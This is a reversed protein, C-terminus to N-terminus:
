KLPRVFTTTWAQGGEATVDPKWLCRDFAQRLELMAAPTLDPSLFDVVVPRGKPGIALKVTVLELGHALLPAQVTERCGPDPEPHAFAGPADRAREARSSAQGGACGAAALALALPVVALVPVPRPTAM